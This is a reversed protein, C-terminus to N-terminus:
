RKMAANIFFGAIVIGFVAEIAAMFRAWPTLPVIDGFGTTTITIASFYTMRWFSKSITVPDGAIGVFLANLQDNEESTLSFTRGKDISTPLTLYSYAGRYFEDRLALEEDPEIYMARYFTFPGPLSGIRVQGNGPINARIATQRSANHPQLQEFRFLLTLRIGGSDRVAANSVRFDVFDWAPIEIKRTSQQMTRHLATDLILVTQKLDEQAAPEYKAYPAYFSGAFFYWYIFGFGPICLLYLLALYFLPSRVARRCRNYFRKMSIDGDSTRERM